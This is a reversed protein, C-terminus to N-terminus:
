LQCPDPHLWGRRQRHRHPLARCGPAAGAGGSSGGPTRDTNWPNRCPESVKNETTGSQGFEPTNTKGLVIAGAAKVREVVISDIEPVRDRFLRFGMTSTIGKTM